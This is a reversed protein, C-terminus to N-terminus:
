QNHYIANCKASLCCNGVKMEAALIGISQLPKEPKRLIDEMIHKTRQGPELNNLSSVINWYEASDVIQGEVGKGSLDARDFVFDRCHMEHSVLNTEAIGGQLV